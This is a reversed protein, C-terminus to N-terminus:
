GNVNKGGKSDSTRGLAKNLALILVGTQEKDLTVKGALEQRVEGLLRDLERYEPELELRVARRAHLSVFNSFRRMLANFSQRAGNFIVLVTLNASVVLTTATWARMLFPQDALPQSGWAVSYLWYFVIALLAIPILAKTSLQYVDGERFWNIWKAMTRWGSRSRM